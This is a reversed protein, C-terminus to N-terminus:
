KQLRKCFSRVLCAHNEDPKPLKSMQEREKMQPQSRPQTILLVPCSAFRLVDRSTSGILMNRLTEGLTREHNGLILWDIHRQRAVSTLEDAPTGVRILTEIHSRMIGHHQLIARAIRLAEAAVVRQGTTPALRHSYGCRGTVLPLPIVNLLLFHTQTTSPAFFDATTHLAYRTASTLSPDIGLLVYRERTVEREQETKFHEM